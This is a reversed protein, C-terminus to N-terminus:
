IEGIMLKILDHQQEITGLNIYYAILLTINLAISLTIM